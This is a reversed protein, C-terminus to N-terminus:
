YRHSMRDPTFEASKELDGRMSGLLKYVARAYERDARTAVVDPEPPKAAAEDRVQDWAIGIVDRPALNVRVALTEQRTSDGFYFEALLLQKELSPLMQEARDANDAERPMRKRMAQEAVVRTAWGSASRWKPDSEVAMLYTIASRRISRFAVLEATLGGIVDLRREYLKRQEEREKDWRAFDATRRASVDNLMTTMMATVVAVILPSTLLATMRSPRDAKMDRVKGRRSAFTPARM